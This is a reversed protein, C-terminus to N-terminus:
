KFCENLFKMRLSYQQAAKRLKEVNREPVWAKNNNYYYNIQKWYKEPYYFMAYLVKTEKESIPLIRNYDELMTIAFQINWNNKELIKRMFQYLDTIQIQVSFKQFNTVSVTGNHILINHQNYSGHCIYGYKSCTHYLENYGSKQLVLTAEEAQNYMTNFTEMVCLEFDSKKRKSRIFNRARKLEKNHREYEDLLSPGLYGEDGGEKFVEMRRLLAHIKALERVAMSLEIISNVNCESGEFWDKLVYRTQEQNLCSLGGEKNRVYCDIYRCGKDKLFSLVTNEADLHKESGNYETLLKLGENTECILAGRGRRVNLVELDYQDLVSRGWDNMCIGGFRM